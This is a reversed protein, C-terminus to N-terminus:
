CLGVRMRWTCQTLSIIVSYIYNFNFYNVVDSQQNRRTTRITSLPISAIRCFCCLCLLTYLTPSIDGWGGVLITYRRRYASVFNDCVNVRRQEYQGHLQLCEVRRKNNKRSTHQTLNFGSVFIREDRTFVFVTLSACGVCGGMNRSGHWIGDRIHPM